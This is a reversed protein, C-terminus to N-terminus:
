RITGGEDVLALRKAHDHKEGRKKFVSVVDSLGNTNGTREKMDAKMTGRRFPGVGLVFWKDNNSRALTEGGAGLAQGTKADYAVFGLKATGFQTNHNIIRLEPMEIPLGPVALGPLGVFSDESDTGIGASRTELIVDADAASPSIAAGSVLLKHRISGVLYGKDVADLYKEDVYVKKGELTAFDVNTLAKDVASSILMQETATRATDSTRSTACGSVLTAILTICLGLQIRKM